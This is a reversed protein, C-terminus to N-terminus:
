ETGENKTSLTQNELKMVVDMTNAFILPDFTVQIRFSADVNDGSLQTSVQSFAPLGEGDSDNQTTYTTAKINDVFKNVTSIKDTGGQLVIIGSEADFSMSQVKVGTPSVFMVYDFLRSTKQKNEHLGPLLTLQNQVTLIENLGEISQIKSTESSIDSTLDKIHTKQAIQVSFLVVVIGISGLSL